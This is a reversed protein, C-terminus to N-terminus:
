GNHPRRQIKYFQMGEQSQKSIAISVIFAVRKESVTTNGEFHM